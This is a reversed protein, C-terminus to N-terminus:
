WFSWLDLFTVFDIYYFPTWKQTHKIPGINWYWLCGTFNLTSAYTILSIVVGKMKPFQKALWYEKDTLCICPLANKSNPSEPCDKSMALKTDGLKVLSSPWAKQTWLILEVLVPKDLFISWQHLWLILLFVLNQAVSWFTCDLNFIIIGGLAQM